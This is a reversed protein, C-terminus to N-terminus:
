IRGGSSLSILPNARLNQFVEPDEGKRAKLRVPVEILIRSPVFDLTAFTTGDADRDVKIQADGLWRALM